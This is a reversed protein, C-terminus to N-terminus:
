TLMHWFFFFFLKFVMCEKRSESVETILIKVLVYWIYTNYSIHRLLHLFLIFTLVCLSYFQLPKKKLKGFISYSM